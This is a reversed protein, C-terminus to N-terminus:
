QMAIPSLVGDLKCAQADFSLMARCGQMRYKALFLCEAFDAKNGEYLYLAYELAGESEIQLLETELLHRLTAVVAAKPLKAASRLVWELELVVPLSLCVEEGRQEAADLMAAAQRTQVADDALVIRAIVNTDLGIM